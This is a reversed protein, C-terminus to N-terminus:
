ASPQSVRTIPPQLGSPRTQLAEPQHSAPPRAQLDASRQNPGRQQRRYASTIAEGTEDEDIASTTTPTTMMVASRRGAARVEVFRITDEVGM